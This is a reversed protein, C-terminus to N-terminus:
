LRISHPYNSILLEKIKGRGSAKCNVYRPVDVVAQHFDAFMSVVREHFSNSLLVYCGAEALSRFVVALHKHDSEHFSERTYRKFDSFKSVPFYPPDLYVFDGKAALKLVSTYGGWRLTAGRLLRSVRRLNEPDVLSVREYSGFPTNFLGQKNVRYIGNFCTKNLYIFRTARMIGDLAEPRLARVRYFEEKGVTFNRLSEILQEPSDRVVEYCQILEPNLDSLIAQVPCTDLFLAGGGLFPEFYRNFADPLCRRLIPLLHTKGGAWKLFPKARQRDRATLFLEAQSQDATSANSRVSLQSFAGCNRQVSEIFSKM